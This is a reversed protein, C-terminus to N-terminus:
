NIKPKILRFAFSSIAGESFTGVEVDGKYGYENCKMIERVDVGWVSAISKVVAGIANLAPYGKEHWEHKPWTEQYYEGGSRIVTQGLAYTIIVNDHLKFTKVNKQQTEIDHGYAIVVEEPIDMKQIDCASVWDGGMKAIKLDGTHAGCQMVIEACAAQEKEDSHLEPILMVQEEAWKRLGEGDVIPEAYDRSARLSKGLLVGAIGSLKCSSLGGLSICGEISSLGYNNRVTILARGVIKGSSDTLPRLNSSAKKMFNATQEETYEEEYDPFDFRSLFEVGDLSKWDNAEIIEQINKEKQVYLSVDIAPAIKKCVDEITKESEYKNKFLFGGKEYPNTNLKLIITTGGDMSCEDALAPRLIPKGNVGNDFELVVTDKQAANSRRSIIKVADAVMFVSFFGIGYQGTPKFGSSLLGPIEEQVGSSSWFSTGFDLLYNTLVNQSMGIGNDSVTLYFVSDKEEISVIIKGFDGGRDEHIKRARVADASNQILERLPVSGDRGYLQEGGLSRVVNPLDSIHVTANIPIWGVTRVFETFREPLDIGAVRRMQFRPLSKDSLLADVSRLERDALKLTDLCLWWSPADSLQFGKNSTFVIADGNTYPKNLAEQFSWHEKSVGSLSSFAKTFTPARRSDLHIADATRLICALKLPDIAWSNPAWAPVGIVRNFEREIKETSWWHSHAIRGILGGFVQRLEVDDILHIKEKGKDDIPYSHLALKEANEAHTIRLYSFLVSKKISSEPSMLENESPDRGLKEQYTSFVLDKYRVDEKIADYGGPTAAVSMALDHLLIAGGLVYGEIPSLIYHSGIVLSAMEWLADMHTIDHITLAPLDGQICNALASARQRFSLFSARLRELESQNKDDDRGLTSRWLYSETIEKSLEM